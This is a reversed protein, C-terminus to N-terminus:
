HRLLVPIIAKGKVSHPVPGIMIGNYKASYRLTELDLNKIKDWDKIIEINKNPIGYDKAIRLHRKRFRFIAL